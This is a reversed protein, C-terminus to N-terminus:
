MIVLRINYFFDSSTVNCVGAVTSAFNNLLKVTHM